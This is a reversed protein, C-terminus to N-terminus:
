TDENTQRRPKPADIQFETWVADISDHDGDRAVENACELLTAYANTILRSDLRTGRSETLRQLYFKAALRLQEVNQSKM